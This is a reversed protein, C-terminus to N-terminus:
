STKAISYYIEEITEAIGDYYYPEAAETVKGTDWDKELANELAVALTQAKKRPVLLGIEPDTIIESIGGVTTAVVPTGCALAEIVVNPWGERWSPLCFIDAARMLQAIQDHDVRGLFEFKKGLNKATIKGLMEQKYGGDPGALKVRVNGAAGKKELLSVADVLEGLGKTEIINGVYLITKKDQEWGLKEREAAKNGPGFLERDVGNPVWNIKGPDVELQEMKGCLDRSVGIAADAGRLVERTARDIEPSARRAPDTEFLWNIDTGYATVVLPIKLQKKLELACVGLDFLTHCHILDFEQESKHVFNLLASTKSQIYKRPLHNYRVTHFTIGGDNGSRPKPFKVSLGRTRYFAQVLGPLFPILVPCAMPSGGAVKLVQRHVFINKNKLWPDPHAPDPLFDVLLLVNLNQRSERSTESV